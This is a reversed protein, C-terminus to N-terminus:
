DKEQIKSPIFQRETRAKCKSYFSNHGQGKYQIQMSNFEIAAKEKKMEVFQVPETM